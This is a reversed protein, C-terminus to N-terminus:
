GKFPHSASSPCTENRSGCESARYPTCQSQTEKGFECYPLRVCCSPTFVFDECTMKKKKMNIYEQEAEAIADLVTKEIVGYSPLDFTLLKGGQAEDSAVLVAYHRIDRGLLYTAVMDSSVKTCTANRKDIVLVKINSM